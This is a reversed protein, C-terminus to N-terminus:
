GMFLHHKKYFKEIILALSIPAEVNVEHSAQKIIHHEANVLQAALKNSARRNIYDKEGCAVLVPCTIQKLGSRFDLDAISSSFQIMQSKGMVGSEIFYKEPLMRFIFNQGRLLNKPMKYQAAILVLSQVKEPFEITFNLALIAGLSIGCLNFPPTFQECYHIFAAYLKEYTVDQIDDLEFLNPCYIGWHEPLHSQMTEWSSSTQGLGHVFITTLM